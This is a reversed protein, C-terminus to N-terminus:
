NPIGILFSELHIMLSNWSHSDTPAKQQCPWQTPRKGAGDTLSQLHQLKLNIVSIAGFLRFRARQLTQLVSQREIQKSLRNGTRALRRIRLVLFANQGSISNLIKWVFKRDIGFKPNANSGLRRVRETMDFCKSAHKHKASSAFWRFGLCSFRKLKIIVSCCAAFAGSDCRHKDSM